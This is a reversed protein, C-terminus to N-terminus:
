KIAEYIAKQRKYWEQWTDVRAACAYYETYNDAVTKAVDSLKADATLQQLTACPTQAVTGPAAPFKATVPIVTTCASLTLALVIALIKM